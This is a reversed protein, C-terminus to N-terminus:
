PRGCRGWAVWYNVVAGQAGGAGGLAGKGVEVATAGDASTELDLTELRASALGLAAVAACWFGEIAAQGSIPGSDPPLLMGDATYLAAAGAFDRGTLAAALRANTEVITQRLETATMNM